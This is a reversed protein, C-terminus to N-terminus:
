EGSNGVRQRKDFNKSDFSKATEYLKTQKIKKAATFLRQLLIYKLALECTKRSYIKSM